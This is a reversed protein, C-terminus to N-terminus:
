SSGSGRRFPRGGHVAPGVVADRLAAFYRRRQEIVGAPLYDRYGCQDVEIFEEPETTSSCGLALVFAAALILSVLPSRM